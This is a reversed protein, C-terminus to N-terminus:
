RPYLHANELFCILPHMLQTFFGTEGHGVMTGMPTALTIVSFPIKTRTFSFVNSCNLWSCKLFGLCKHSMVWSLFCCSPVHQVNAGFWFWNVIVPKLLKSCYHWYHLRYLLEQLIHWSRIPFLVANPDGEPPSAVVLGANAVFHHGITASAHKWHNKRGDRVHFLVM